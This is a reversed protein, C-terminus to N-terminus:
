SRVIEWAGDPQLCATGYARESRGGVTIIQQFERCQRGATSTGIRTTTVAGSANGDEWQITENVEASAAEVQAAEHQRQQQENLNDLLKVTIATFALWKFASSDSFHFGYGRYVPGHRRIVRTGHYHRHRRPAVVRHHARSVRRAHTPAHRKVYRRSGVARTPVAARHSRHKGERADRKVERHDRVQRATKHSRREKYAREVREQKAYSRDAQSATPLTSLGIFLLSLSLTYPLLKHIRKM